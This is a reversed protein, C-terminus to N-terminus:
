IEGAQFHTAPPVPVNDTPYASSFTPSPPQEVMPMPAPPTSAGIAGRPPPADDHIMWSQTGRKSNTFLADLPNGSSSGPNDGDPYSMDPDANYSGASYDRPNYDGGGKSGPSLYTEDYDEDADPDSTNNDNDVKKETGAKKAKQRKLFFYAGLAVALLVVLILFVILVVWLPNMGDDGSPSDTPTTPSGISSGDTRLRFSDVATADSSVRVVCSSCDDRLILGMSATGDVLRKGAGTTQEGASGFSSQLAASGLPVGEVTELVATVLSTDLRNISGYDDLASVELTFPVDKVVQSVTKLSASLRTTVTTVRIPGITIPLLTSTADRAEIFCADCALSFKAAFTAVGKSFTQKLSGSSASLVGGGGNLGGSLLTLTVASAWLEDVNKAKDVVQIVVPFASDRQVTTTDTTASTMDTGRSTIQFPPTATSIIGFDTSFAVVCAACAADFVLDFTARGNVFKQLLGRGSVEAMNGGNGNGGNARLSATVTGSHAM